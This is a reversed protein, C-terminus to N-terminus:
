SWTRDHSWEGDWRDTPEWFGPMTPDLHAKIVDDNLSEIGLGPADPVTIFGRSVIPKSPGEVMDDWWPIDASHYELALFNESAASAHVAAMCGIPSEAMHVVLAIGREQALDGIKKTELIGGATLVDPHAVSIANANILPQFGEKLYIDEGTGLGVKDTEM